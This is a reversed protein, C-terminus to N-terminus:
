FNRQTYESDSLLSSRVEDNKTLQELRLKKKIWCCHIKLHLNIQHIEKKNELSFILDM